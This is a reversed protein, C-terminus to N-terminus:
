RNSVVETQNVEYSFVNSGIREQHASFPNDSSFDFNTISEFNPTRIWYSINDDNNYPFNIVLGCNNNNVIEAQVIGIETSNFVIKNLPDKILGSVLYNEELNLILESDRINLKLSDNNDSVKLIVKGDHVICIGDSEEKISYSSNKCSTVVIVLSLVIILKNFFKYM